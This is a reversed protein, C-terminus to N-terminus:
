RQRAKESKRNLYEEPARYAAAVLKKYLESPLVAKFLESEQFRMAYQQGIKSLDMTTIDIGDNSIHGERVCHMAHTNKVNIKQRVPLSMSLFGQEKDTTLLQKHYEKNAERDPTTDDPWIIKYGGGEEPRLYTRKLFSTVHLKADIEQSCVTRFDRGKAIFGLEQAVHLAIGSSRLYATPLSLTLLGRGADKLESGSLVSLTYGLQKRAVEDEVHFVGHKPAKEKPIPEKLDSIKVSPDTAALLPVVINLAIVLNLHDTQADSPSLRFESMGVKSRIVYSRRAHCSIAVKNNTMLFGDMGGFFLFGDQSAKLQMAITEAGSKWYEESEPDFIGHGDKKASFTLHRKGIKTTCGYRHAQHVAARIIANHADQLSGLKMPKSRLENVNPNDEYEDAGFDHLLFQRLPSMEHLRAMLLDQSRFDSLMKLKEPAVVKLHQNLRGRLAGFRAAHQNEKELIFEIETGALVDTIGREALTKLSDQIFIRLDDDLGATAPEIKERYPNKYAM